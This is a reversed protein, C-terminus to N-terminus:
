HSRLQEYIEDILRDTTGEGCVADMAERVTAGKAIETLIMASIAQTKTMPGAGTNTDIQYTCQVM